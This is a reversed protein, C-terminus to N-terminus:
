GRQNDSNRWMASNKKKPSNIKSINSLIHARPGLIYKSDEKLRKSQRTMEPLTKSTTNVCKLGLDPDNPKDTKRARLSSRIKLTHILKISVIFDSPFVASIHNAQHISLLYLLIKLLVIKEYLPLLNSPTKKTSM